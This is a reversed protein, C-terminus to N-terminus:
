HESNKEKAQKNKIKEQKAATHWLQPVKSDDAWLVKKYILARPGTATLHGQGKGNEEM